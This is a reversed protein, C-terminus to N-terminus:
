VDEPGVAAAGDGPWGHQTSQDDESMGYGNPESLL